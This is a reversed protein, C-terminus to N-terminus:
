SMALWPQNRHRLWLNEALGIYKLLLRQGLHEDQMTAIPCSITWHPMQSKASATIVSESAITAPDARSLSLASRTSTTNFWKQHDAVLTASQGAL